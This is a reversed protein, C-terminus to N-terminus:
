KNLSIYKLIQLIGTKNEYIFSEFFSRYYFLFSIIITIQFIITLIVRFVRIKSMTMNILCHILYPYLLDLFFLPFWFHASIGTFGANWRM